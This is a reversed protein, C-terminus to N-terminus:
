AGKSFERLDSGDRVFRRVLNPFIVEFCIVVGFKTKESDLSPLEM